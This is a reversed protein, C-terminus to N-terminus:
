LCFTTVKDKVFSKLDTQKRKQPAANSNDVSSATKTASLMDFVSDSTKFLPVKAEKSKVAFPNGSKKPLKSKTSNSFMAESTPARQAPEPEDFLQSQTETSISEDYSTQNEFPTPISNHREFTNPMSYDPIFSRNSYSYDMIPESAKSEEEKRM